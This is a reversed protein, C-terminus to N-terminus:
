RIWERTAVEAARRQQGLVALICMVNIDRLKSNPIYASYRLARRVGPTTAGSYRYCGGVHPSIRFYEGNGAVAGTYMASADNHAYKHVCRVYVRTAAIM